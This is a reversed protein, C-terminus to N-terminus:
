AVTTEIHEYRLLQGTVVGGQTEPLDRFNRCAVLLNAFM